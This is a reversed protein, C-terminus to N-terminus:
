QFSLVVGAEVVGGRRCDAAGVGRCVGCQCFAEAGRAFDARARRFPSQAAPGGQDYSVSRYTHVASYDLSMKAVSIGNFGPVPFNGCGAPQFAQAVYRLCEQRRTRAVKWGGTPLVPAM